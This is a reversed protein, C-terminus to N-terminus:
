SPPEQGVMGEKGLEEMVRQLSEDIKTVKRSASNILSMAALWERIETDALDVVM